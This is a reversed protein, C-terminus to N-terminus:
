SFQTQQIHFFDLAKLRNLSFGEESETLSTSPNVDPRSGSVEFLLVFSLSVTFSSWM